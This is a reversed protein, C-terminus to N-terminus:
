SCTPRAHERPRFVIGIACYVVAIVAPIMTWNGIYHSPWRLELSSDKMDVAPAACLLRLGFDIMQM